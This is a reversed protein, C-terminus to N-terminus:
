EAWAWSGNTFRFIVNKYKLQYLKIGEVHGDPFTFNCSRNSMHRWRVWAGNGSSGDNRDTNHGAWDGPVPNEKQSIGINPWCNASDGGQWWCGNSSPEYFCAFSVGSDVQCGEGVVVIDSPRRIQSSRAPTWTSNQAIDPILTAHASYCLNNPDNMRPLGSPCAFVPSQVAHAAYSTANNSSNLYPNLYLTWNSTHLAPVGTVGPPYIEFDASYLGLSLGIQKLNSMCMASRAQEKAKALAPLMLAALIAIIAIVVLLEILTFM